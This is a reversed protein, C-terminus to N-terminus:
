ATPQVAPLDFMNDGRRIVDKGGDIFIVQGVTYRCEDSALFALLPAIDEPPAYERVAIPTAEALMARGEATALIPEIMPTVVAGPAIGNLLIGSGAWEPLISTRRIWQGLARKTSAYVKDPEADALAIARHEDGALCAEVIAPAVPLISASSVIVAVRPAPSRALTERLAEILSVTGFYNVGIMGALNAGALGACAILADLRGGSLAVAQEAANRRGEATCLDACIDADRLDLGIVTEGRQRLLATTAKGIGSASGTVLITRNM